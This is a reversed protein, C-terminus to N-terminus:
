LFFIFTYEGTSLGVITLQQYLTYVAEGCAHYYLPGELHKYIYAPRSLAEIEYVCDAVAGAATRELNGAAFDQYCVFRRALKTQLICACIAPRRLYFSARFPNFACPGDSFRFLSLDPTARELGPAPPARSSSITKYSARQKERKAAVLFSFSLFFGQYESRYDGLTTTHFQTQGVNRLYFIVKM